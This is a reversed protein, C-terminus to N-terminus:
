SRSRTRGRGRRAQSICHLFMGIPRLGEAPAHMRRPQRQEEQLAADAGVRQGPLAAQDRGDHEAVVEVGIPDVPNVETEQGGGGDDHLDDGAQGRAEVEAPPPQAAQAGGILWGGLAATSIGGAFWRVRM